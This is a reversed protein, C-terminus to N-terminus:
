TQIKRKARDNRFKSVFICPPLDLWNLSQPKISAVRIRPTKKERISTTCSCHKHSLYKNQGALTSTVKTKRVRKSVKNLGKLQFHAATHVSTHLFYFLISLYGLM